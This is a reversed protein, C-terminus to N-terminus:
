DEGVCVRLVDFRKATELTVYALAGAEVANRTPDFIEGLGMTQKTM